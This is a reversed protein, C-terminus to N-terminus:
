LAERGVPGTVDWGDVRRLARPMEALLDELKYRHKRPANVTM